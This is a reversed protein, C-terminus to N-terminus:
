ALKDLKTDVVATPVMKEARADSEESLEAEEISNDYFSKKGRHKKKEKKKHRGMFEERKRM